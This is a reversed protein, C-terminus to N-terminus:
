KKNNNHTGSSISTIFTEPFIHITYPHAISFLRYAIFYIAQSFIYVIKANRSYVTIQVITDNFFKISLFIRALINNYFDHFIRLHLNVINGQWCSASYLKVCFILVLLVCHSSILRAYFLALIWGKGWQTSYVNKGELVKNREYRWSLINSGAGELRIGLSFSLGEIKNYSMHFANHIWQVNKYSKLKSINKLKNNLLKDFMNKHFFNLQNERIYLYFQAFLRLHCFSSNYIVGCLMWTGLHFIIACFPIFLRNNKLTKYPPLDHSSLASFYVLCCVFPKLFSFFFIEAGHTLLPPHYATHRRAVLRTFSSFRGAPPLFFTLRRVKWLHFFVCAFRSFKEVFPGLPFTKERANDSRINGSSKSGRLTCFVVIFAWKELSHHLQVGVLM